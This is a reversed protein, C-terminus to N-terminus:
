ARQSEAYDPRHPRDAGPDPSDHRQPPGAQITYPGEQPSQDLLAQDGRYEVRKTGAVIKAFWERELTTTIVDM